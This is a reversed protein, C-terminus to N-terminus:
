SEGLLKLVKEPLKRLDDLAVHREYGLYALNNALEVAERMTYGFGVAVMRCHRKLEAIRRKCPYKYDPEGDTLTIFYLKGQNALVLPTLREYVEELPTGGDASIQALRKANIRTWKERFSKVLYIQTYSQYQAFAYMAFPIGLTSLAEALAICAMKYTKQYREISGSHDLLLIVKFGGVKIREEDTFVKSHKAVYSDVDFEGTDSPLEKWGRRLQRLQAKLHTILEQDYYQSEDVDLKSPLIIGEAVEAKAGQRIGEIRKDEQLVQKVEEKIEDPIQLLSETESKVISDTDLELSSQGGQQADPERGQERAQSELKAKVYEEVIQRAASKNIKGVVGISLKYYHPLQPIGLMKHVDDCVKKVVNDPVDQQLQTKVYEVAKMVLEHEDAPLKGKYTGLLLQQSFAELLRLHKTADKDFVKEYESAQITTVDAVFHYVQAKSLLRERVMGPWLKYGLVHEVFYDIIVNDLVDKHDIWRYIHMAEHWLSARYLRYGLYLDSSFKAPYPMYIEKKSSDSYSTPYKYEHSLSVVTDSKGSWARALFQSIPLVSENRVM